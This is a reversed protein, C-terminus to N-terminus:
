ADVRMISWEVSRGAAGSTQTLTYKVSHPSPLPDSVWNKLSQAGEFVQEQELQETSGSLCKTYARVVFRDPTSGDVANAFNCRICYNGSTTVTALTHETSITCAQTGSGAVSPM